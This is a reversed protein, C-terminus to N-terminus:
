LNAWAPDMEREEDVVPEQATRVPQQASYYQLVCVSLQEYVAASTCVVQDYWRNDKGQEQPMSVFRGTRGEVVRVGKIILAGNVGVDAFAKLRGADPLCFMKEVKFIVTNM